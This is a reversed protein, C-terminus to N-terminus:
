LVVSISFGDYGKVGVTQLATTRLSKEAALAKLFNRVGVVREEDTELNAVEGKRVVNDAVIVTGQHSLRLSLALYDVYGPKDADIFVLDFPDVSKEILSTLAPKADANIITVGSGVGALDFNRRAVEAHKAEYEITVLKGNDALARALWIGSYGGLTGIELIRGARCSQALIQLFMGQCPSVSIAPLGAVRCNEQVQQMVSDDLSFLGNFYDDVSNWTAQSM